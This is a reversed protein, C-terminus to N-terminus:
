ILISQPIKPVYLATRILKRFTKRERHPAIINFVASVFDDFPGHPTECPTKGVWVRYDSALNRVLDVDTKNRPRGRKKANEDVANSKSYIAPGGREIAEDCAETLASFAIDGLSAIPSEDSYMDDFLSTILEKYLHRLYPTRELRNMTPTVLCCDSLTSRTSPNLKELADRLRTIEALLDKKGIISKRSWYKNDDWEAWAQEIRLYLRQIEEQKITIGHRKFVNQIAAKDKDSLKKIMNDGMCSQGGFALTHGQGPLVEGAPRGPRIDNM